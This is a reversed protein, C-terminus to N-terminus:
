PKARAKEGGEGIGVKVIVYPDSTSARMFHRDMAALQRAQLIQVELKGGQFPVALNDTLYDLKQWGVRGAPLRQASASAWWWPGHAHQWQWCVEQGRQAANEDSASEARGTFGVAQGAPHRPPLYILGM